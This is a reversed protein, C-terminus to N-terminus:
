NWCRPRCCSPELLHDIGEGTKASVPIFQTEGGYEEPIVGEAVLEQKCANRTPKRSTSRTSRSSSRFTPRGQRARDSGEDAADRRRRRGRGARRHRHGERRARANRHVGRPGAHRPVHDRGEADARSVRRHAAHHRRSRREAVRTARISDLLSTKGHDVHGMVTVVPPRPEAVCARPERSPSCRM